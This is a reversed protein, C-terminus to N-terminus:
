DFWCQMLLPSGGFLGGYVNLDKGERSEKRQVTGGTEEKAEEKTKRRKVASMVEEGEGKETRDRSCLHHRHRKKLKKIKRGRGGRGGEEEEGEAEFQHQKTVEPTSFTVKKLISHLVTPTADAHTPTAEQLKVAPTGPRESISQWHLRATATALSDANHMSTSVEQNNQPLVIAAMEGGASKCEDVPPVPGPPASFPSERSGECLARAGELGELTTIEQSGTPTSTKYVQLLQQNMANSIQQTFTCNPMGCEQLLATTIDVQRQILRTWFDRWGKWIRWEKRTM